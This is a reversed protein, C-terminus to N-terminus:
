GEPTLLIYEGLGYRDGFIYQRNLRYYRWIEYADYLTVDPMAPNKPAAYYPEAQIEDPPGYKVFIRARDSRWGRDGHSFHEESYNIRAFYEAEKENFETNPTPDHQKWFSRWLSDREPKTAHKLERMESPTAIYELQTVKLSWTPEDLYFPRSIIFPVEVADIQITKSYMQLKLTYNGNALATADFWLTDDYNGTKVPTIKSIGNIEAFMNDVEGEANIISFAINITDNAMLWKINGIYKIQLIPEAIYFIDGGHLDVIRLEFYRSKKSILMKVSDAINFTDKVIKKEWYDGTLQNDKEDYVKLQSEYEAYFLSDDAVYKLNNTPITFYVILEQQENDYPRNITQWEIQLFLFLIM